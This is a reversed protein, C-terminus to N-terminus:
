LNIWLQLWFLYHLILYPFYSVSHHTVYIKEIWNKSSLDCDICSSWVGFGNFSFLGNIELFEVFNSIRQEHWDLWSTGLPAYMNMFLIYFYWIILYSSGRLFVSNFFISNKSIKIDEITM